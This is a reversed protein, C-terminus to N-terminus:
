QEYHSAWRELLNITILLIFSFIMMVVALTMAGPLDFEELRIVILLPLIESQYPINSSIFIVSGFEGIARAFALAFGTIITPLLTPPLQYAEGIPRFSASVMWLFPMLMVLGGSCLVLMMWWNRWHMFSTAGILRLSYSSASSM